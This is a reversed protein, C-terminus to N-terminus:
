DLRGGEKGFHVTDNIFMEFMPQCSLKHSKKGKKSHVLTENKRDMNQRTYYGPVGNKYSKSVPIMEEYDLSVENLSSLGTNINKLDPIETYSNELNESFEVDNKDGNNTHTCFVIISIFSVTFLVATQIQHGM